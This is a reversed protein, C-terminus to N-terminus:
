APPTTEQGEDPSWHFWPRHRMLILVVAVDLAGFLIGQASGSTLELFGAVAAVNVAVLWGKGRRVLFGLVVFGIGLAFSLAAIGLSAQDRAALSATAEITILIGMLGSVVM